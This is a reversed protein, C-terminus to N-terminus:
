RELMEAYRNLVGALIVIQANADAWKRQEIAERVGPLTKVGYGTYFGPAYVHHRYWPRGPLGEDRTLLQELRMVTADNRKKGDFARASKQLRAVANELPALELHPVADDEKPAVFPKLPDAALEMTRDRLQRNKEDSEGRMTEALKKVDALYRAVTEALTSTEFPLVDANALRLMMRGTTKAQTIGYVLNPDGFRLYHALSDYASHYVGYQGEGDYGISLSAIGAHQLFPSYDSGSGLADLRIGTRERLERREDADSANVLDYARRRELVSVGRQPDKVDRAVENVFRELTHSGAADLFGRGNSDSNIYVVAHERLKALHTEVWETSGLLGPEEADWAAFVLTRRPRWGSKALEAIARAEEMLSVMGSIPDRAGHVWADHHNGRLIWQGALDSGPMRAIVDYAPALKWDFELKLHVRAPGPGLHYAIPLAGRWREPAIPGGLARLLPLADGYSIPLVPIKTITQADKRDLRKADATAGIGPTLPDGPYMPMDAVSGRQASHDSRFAGKPYVDGEFYGDDRPDSYIICGIAGREAAVKPKIGRWSGGYRAIVIKGRVDVGNRALVDYDRPIGYNVYVLEGTVDGDISYANYPPLIEAAQDSTADEALAPENLQATYREPAILELVRTKPTPFLVDFREIATDYGWSKFLAAMFEANEKGYPSGVHHPRAALRKMWAELNARDLTADFKAELAHQKAPDSFGYIPAPATQASLLTTTLLLTSALLRRM